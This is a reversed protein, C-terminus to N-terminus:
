QPGAPLLEVIQEFPHSIAADREARGKRAAISYATAASIVAVLSLATAGLVIWVWSPVQTMAESQPLGASKSMGRRVAPSPACDWCPERVEAQCVTPAVVRSSYVARANLPQVPRYNGYLAIPETATELALKLLELSEPTITKPAKMVVWTVQENCGPTTLSGGYSYFEDNPAFVDSLQVNSKLPVPAGLPQLTPAAEAFLRVLNSQYEGLELFVGVVLVADKAGTALAASLDAGRTPNFHVLHLEAPFRRGELTHESGENTESERGFHIHM